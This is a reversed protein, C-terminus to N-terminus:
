NASMSIAKPLLYNEEFLRQSFSEILQKESLSNNGTVTLKFSLSHRLATITLSFLLRNHTGLAHMRNTFSVNVDVTPRDV